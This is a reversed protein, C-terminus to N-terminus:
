ESSAQKATLLKVWKECMRLLAQEAALMGQKQTECRGEETGAGWWWAKGSGTGHFREVRALVMPFAGKGDALIVSGFDSEWLTSVKYPVLTTETKDTKKKM